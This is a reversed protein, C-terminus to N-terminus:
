PGAGWHVWRMLGEGRLMQENLRWHRLVASASPPAGRLVHSACSSQGDPQAEPVPRPAPPGESASPGVPLRPLFPLSLGQGEGQGRDRGRGGAGGGQGRGKGRDRGGAGRGRGRGRGGALVPGLGGDALRAATMCIQRRRGPPFNLSIHPPKRSAGRHELGEFYPRHNTWM